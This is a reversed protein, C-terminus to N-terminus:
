QFCNKPETSLTWPLGDTVTKQNRSVMLIWGKFTKFKEQDYKKRPSSLWLGTIYLAKQSHNSIFSISALCKLKMNSNYSFFQGVVETKNYNHSFVNQSHIGLASFPVQSSNKPETIELGHYQFSKNSHFGLAQYEM